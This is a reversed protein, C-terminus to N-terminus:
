IKDGKPSPFLASLLSKSVKAYDLTLFVGSCNHQRVIHEGKTLRHEGHFLSEPSIKANLVQHMDSAVEVRYRLRSRRRVAARLESLNLTRLKM